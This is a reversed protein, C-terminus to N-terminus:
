RSGTNRTVERHIPTRPIDQTDYAFFATLFQVGVVIPLAALMVTGSTAPQGTAISRSWQVTGVWTGFVALLVGAVLEVSAISFSRLFYNYFIRKLTNRGHKLAFEGLARSVRLNSEEDGYRADIPIERVVARVINLHFLMDSEFFYRRSVQELPLAEAVRAHIATFGNTPDFLNWYGSSLKNLFSLGANGILRVRPMERLSDLDYFRNGKVYDAEGRLLPAVLAPIREVPMQGDGDVKVIVDAGDAIAARYGTMTAGGVGENTGHHLVRVRPDRCESEVRAGSQQPCADDVVYIRAVEPGISALVDLIRERVRYAPVVAAIMHAATGTSGVDPTEAPM